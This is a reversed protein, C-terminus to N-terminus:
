NVDSLMCIIFKGISTSLLLSSGDASETINKLREEADSIKSETSESTQRLMQDSASNNQSDPPQEDNSSTSGHVQEMHKQLSHTTRFNRQCLSCKTADRMIHYLSHTTLKEQTKFALSCQKCRYKYVHRESIVTSMHVEKYHTIMASVTSFSLQCPYNSHNSALCQYDGNLKITFHQLKQVHQLLQQEQKFCAGCQQCSLVAQQSSTPIVTPEENATSSEKSDTVALEDASQLSSKKNKEWVNSDVLMLLRVLGDRNVSHVHMLHIDLKEKETFYEQCLPCQVSTPTEETEQDTESISQQEEMAVNQEAVDNNNRTQDNTSNNLSLKIQKESPGKFENQEDDMEDEADPRERKINLTEEQDNAEVNLALSTKNAAAAAAATAAAVAAQFAQIAAANTPISIFDQEADPHQEDAHSLIEEKSKAFFDCHNCKYIVSPFVSPVGISRDLDFSPTSYLPMENQSINNSTNGDDSGIFQNPLSFGSYGCMNQSSSPSKCVDSFLLNLKHVNWTYIKNLM